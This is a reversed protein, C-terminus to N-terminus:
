GVQDMMDLFRQSTLRDKPDQKWAENILNWLRDTLGREVFKPGLPRTPRLGKQMNFLVETTRRVEAYPAECTIMEIVTMAFSFMDSQPSLIGPASCIEPAFWRYSDSIGKSQTFPTGTVDELIKSLGFDTILPMGNNGILINECKIDGHVIPKPEWSHLLALGRAVHKIMQTRDLYPNKLLYNLCTGNSQWPSVMYPYPGDNTVTGYYPLFHIGRDREWVSRWIKAERHFRRLQQPKCQVGRLVKLAVKEQGMFEGEWIDFQAGMAVPYQGLRRVENGRLETYPPLEGTCYKINMLKTQLENHRWDGMEYQPMAEQITGMLPVAMQAFQSFERRLQNVSEQTDLEGKLVEQLMGVVEKHDAERAKEALDQWKASEIAHAVNIEQLCQEIQAHCDSIENAHRKSLVVKEIRSSSVLRDLVLQISELTSITRNVAQQVQSFDLEQVGQRLILLLFYSRDAVVKM